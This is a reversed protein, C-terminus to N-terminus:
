RVGEQQVGRAIGTVRVEASRALDEDDLAAPAANSANAQRAGAAGGQERGAGSQIPLGAPVRPPSPPGAPGAPPRPPAVPPVYGPVRQGAGRTLEHAVPGLAEPPEPTEPAPG